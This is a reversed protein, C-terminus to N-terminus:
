LMWPSKVVELESYLGFEATFNESQFTKTGKINKYIHFQQQETAWNHGIRQSVHVAACWAERDRVTEWLNGLNVNM